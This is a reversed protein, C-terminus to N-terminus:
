PTVESIEIVIRWRLVEGRLEARAPTGEATPTAITTPQATATLAAELTPPITAPTFPTATPTATPTPIPTTVANTNHVVLNTNVTWMVQGDVEIRHWFDYGAAPNDEIARGTIEIGCTFPPLPERAIGFRIDPGTRVNSVWGGTCADGRQAGAVSVCVLFALALVWKAARMM